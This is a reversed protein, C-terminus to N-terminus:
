LSTSGKLPPKTVLDHGVRAIGHDTAQWAGRDMLDELCSYLLSNGNREGPSKGLGPILGWDGANCASKRGVSGGPFGKLVLFIM